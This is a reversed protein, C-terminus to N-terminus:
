RHTLIYTLHWKGTVEFLHQTKGTTQATLLFTLTCPVCYPLSPQTPLASPTDIVLTLTLLKSFLKGEIEHLNETDFHNM